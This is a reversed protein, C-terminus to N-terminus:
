KLKVKEDAISFTITVSAHVNIQGIAMTEDQTSITDEIFEAVNIARPRGMRTGYLSRWDTQDEEIKIPEVIQQGLEAAMAEAKEKAAQIALKRARDAHKRLETTNFHIGSVRNVGADLADSLLDEFKSIDKLNFLITKRVSYSEIEDGRGRQDYRPYITIHDTQVDQPDIEYKEALALVKRVSEDNQTKAVHMEPDITEVGLHLVIVDSVVNVEAAGNVTISRPERAEATIFILLFASLFLWKRINSM